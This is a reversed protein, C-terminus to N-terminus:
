TGDPEEPKKKTVRITGLAECVEVYAHAMGGGFKDMVRNYADETLAWGARMDMAVASTKLASELDGIRAITDSIAEYSDSKIDLKAMLWVILKAGDPWIESPNDPDDQWMKIGRRCANDYLEFSAEWDDVETQLADARSKQRAYQKCWYGVDQGDILDGVRIFAM